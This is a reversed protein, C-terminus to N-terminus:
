DRSESEARRAARSAARARKMISRRGFWTRGALAGDLAAAVERDYADREREARERDLREVESPQVAGTRADHDWELTHPCSMTVFNPRETLHLEDRPLTTDTPPPNATWAGIYLMIRAALNIWLLLTVVTAFSAFVPDSSPNGVISTGALRLVGTAVAGLAAGAWLDRAPPKAGGVFTMIAAFVLMDVGFAALAGLVSVLLRGMGPDLDLFDSIWSGALNSGIGVAASLVIGTGLVLFGLLDRIKSIVFNRPKATLGFVASLSKGLATMVALASFLLAVAAIVTTITLGADQVLSEPKVLGGDGTDLIGPLAEDIAEMVADLLEPNGGLVRMFVTVMITLGAVVSFLAAYSIGGALTAGNVAGYRALMRALRSQKWWDMVATLRQKM